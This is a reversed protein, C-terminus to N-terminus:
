ETRAATRPKSMFREGEYQFGYREYLGHADRTTLMGLLSQLRTDNVVTEVLMKGYGKGRHRKDIVVDCLYYSTAYDTVVRAFGIMNNGCFVGYCLSHKMSKKVTELPRGSAWYCDSLLEKIRKSRMRLKNRSITIKQNKM